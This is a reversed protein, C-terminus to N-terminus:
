AAAHALAALVRRHTGETAPLELKSFIATVHREVARGSLHLAAGIGRNSRGAALEDLVARERPTLSALTDRRGHVMAAVVEPDLVSGGAAVRRLADTFREVEAVRRELLYGAGAAGGELLERAAHEDLTESVILVGARPVEARLTGTAPVASRDAIVVDPRHSRAKRLLDAPNSAVGAIDFGHDTLLRAICARTLPQAGAVVVRLPEQVRPAFRLARTEFQTVPPYM